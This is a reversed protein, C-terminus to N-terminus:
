PLEEYSFRTELNNFLGWHCKIISTDSITAVYVYFQKNSLENIGLVELAHQLGEKFSDYIAQRHKQNGTKSSTIIASFIKTTEDKTSFLKLAVKVIDIISYINPGKWELDIPPITNIRFDLNGKTGEGVAKKRTEIPNETNIGKWIFVEDTKVEPYVLQKEWMDIKQTLFHQYLFSSFQHHYFRENIVDAFGERGKNKIHLSTKNLVNDLIAEWEPKTLTYNM